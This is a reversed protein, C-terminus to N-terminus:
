QAWKQPWKTCKLPSACKRSTCFQRSGPGPYGPVIDSLWYVFQIAAKRYDMCTHRLLTQSPRFITSGKTYLFPTHTYTCTYGKIIIHMQSLKYFPNHILFHIIHWARGYAPHRSAARWWLEVLDLEAYCLLATLFWLSPAVSRDALILSGCSIGDDRWEKM